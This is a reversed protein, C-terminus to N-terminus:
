TFTIQQATAWRWPVWAFAAWSRLYGEGKNWDDSNENGINDNFQWDALRCLAMTREPISDPNAFLYARTTAGGTLGTTTVYASVIVDVTGRFKGTVGSSDVSQNSMLPSTVTKFAYYQTPHVLATFHDVGDNIPTGQDDVVALLQATGTVLAAEVQSATTAAGGGGGASTLLNTQSAGSEGHSASFLAIADYGLATTSALGQMFTRDLGKQAKFALQVAKDRVQQGKSQAVLRRFYVTQEWEFMTAVITWDKLLVAEKAGGGQLGSMQRPEPVSGFSAYTETIDTQDKTVSLQPYVRKTAANELSAYFDDQIIGSTVPTNVPWAM